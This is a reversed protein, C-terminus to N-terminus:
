KLGWPAGLGRCYPVEPRTIFDDFDILCDRPVWQPGRDLSFFWYFFVILAIKFGAFVITIFFDM